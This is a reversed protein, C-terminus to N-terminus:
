NSDHYLDVPIISDILEYKSAVYVGRTDIVQKQGLYIVVKFPGQLHHM